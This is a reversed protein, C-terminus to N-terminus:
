SSGRTAELAAMRLRLAVRRQGVVMAQHQL